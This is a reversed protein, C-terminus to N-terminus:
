KPTKSELDRERIAQETLIAQQRVRTPMGPVGAAFHDVEPLSKSNGIMVLARLAEFVQTEGPEIIAIADSAGVHGGDKAALRAITGALPSVVDVPHVGSAPSIRAVVDGSQVKEKEKFRFEITGAQPADLTFPQLMARLEREGATDGFRALGLAANSRVLPSPDDVLARLKQHFADYRSDQGMVWVAMSRLQPEKNGALRIIDPYWRRTTADGRAMRDSLQALAHQTKHPVSTDALYQGMEQDSLSRGFWTQYWFLFTILVVLIPVIFIFTNRPSGPQFNAKQVSLFHPMMDLFLASGHRVDVDQLAAAFGAARFKALVASTKAV